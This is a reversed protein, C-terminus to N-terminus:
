YNPIITGDIVKEQYEIISEVNIIRKFLKEIIENDKNTIIVAETDSYGYEQEKLNIYKIGPENENAYDINWIAGDIRGTKIFNVLQSYIVPVYEVRMNKFYTLTLVMQDISSYDIGIKMGPKISSIESDRIFLVHEDVYSKEGFSMVIQINEGNKIYYEATLKSTIAFDYRKDKLAGLRHNSGRMFALDILINISNLSNYLGTALGEYRKSYPLPMVGVISKVGAINLLKSHDINTIFTGLHGRAELVIAGYDQLIKLATQITGRGTEYKEALSAVTNIRDGIENATFDCALKMAMIGNKQMLENHIDM